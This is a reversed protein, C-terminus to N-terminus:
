GGKTGPLKKRTYGPLPESSETGRLGAAAAERGLEEPLVARIEAAVAEADYAV